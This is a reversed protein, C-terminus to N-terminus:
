EELVSEEEFDFRIQKSGHYEPFFIERDEWTAKIEDNLRCASVTLPTFGLLTWSELQPLVLSSQQYSSTSISISAGPPYSNITVQRCPTCSLCFFVSLVGSYLLSKMRHLFWLIHKSIVQEFLYKWSKTTLISKSYLLAILFGPPRL